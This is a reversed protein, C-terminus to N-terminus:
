SSSRPSILRSPNASAALLRDISAKYWAYAQQFVKDPAAM